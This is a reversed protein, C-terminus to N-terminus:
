PMCSPPINRADTSPIEMRVMRPGGAGDCGKSSTPRPVAAATRAYVRRKSASSVEAKLRLM